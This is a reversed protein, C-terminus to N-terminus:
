RGQRRCCSRLAMRSLMSVADFDDRVPSGEHEGEVFLMSIMAYPRVRTNAWRFADLAVIAMVDVVVVRAFVLNAGVRHYDM